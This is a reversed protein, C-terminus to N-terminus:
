YSGIKSLNNPAKTRKIWDSYFSNPAAKKKREDYVPKECPPVWRPKCYIAYTLDDIAHMDCKDLVEEHITKGSVYKPRGFELEKLERVLEPCKDELIIIQGRMLRPKWYNLRDITKPPMTHPVRMPKLGLDRLQEEVNRESHDTDRTVVRDAFYCQIPHRNRNLIMEGLKESWLGSEYIEDYIVWQEVGFADPESIRMWHAAARTARGPDLSVYHAASPDEEVDRSDKICIKWDVGIYFSGAFSEFTGFNREKFSAVDLERDFLSRVDAEYSKYNYFPNEYGPYQFTEYSEMYSVANEVHYPGKEYNIYYCEVNEKNWDISVVMEKSLGKEFAPYLIEDKGKPTAPYIVWGSKDSLRKNLHRDWVVGPVTSGEAFVLGTLKVGELKAYDRPSAYSRQEIVSKSANPWDITISKPATNRIKLYKTPKKIKLGRVEGQRIIEPAIKKYWLDTKTLCHELYAWENDAVSLTPAVIWIHCGPVTMAPVCEMAAILSKAFRNGAAIVKFRARSKHIVEAADFPVYPTEENTGNDWDRICLNWIEEKEEYSLLKNRKKVDSFEIEFSETAM